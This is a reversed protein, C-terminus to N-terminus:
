GDYKFILIFGTLDQRPLTAKRRKGQSISSTKAYRIESPNWITFMKGEFVDNLGICTRESYM